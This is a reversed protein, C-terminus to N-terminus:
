KGECGFRPLYDYNFSNPTLCLVSKQNNIARAGDDCQLSMRELYNYSDKYNTIKGNKISAFRTAPCTIEVLVCHYIKFMCKIMTM